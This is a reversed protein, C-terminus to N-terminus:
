PQCAFISGDLSQLSNVIQGVRDIQRGPQHEVFGAVLSWESLNTVVVPQKECEVVIESVTAKEAIGYTVGKQARVPGTAEIAYRSLIQARLPTLRSATRFARSNPTQWCRSRM